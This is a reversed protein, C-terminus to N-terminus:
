ATPWRWTSRATPTAPAPAGTTAPARTTPPRGSQGAAAAVQHERQLRVHGPRLLRGPRSPLFYGVSNAKRAYFGRNLAVTPLASGFTQALLSTGSGVVGFPDFVADNWFTPTYDRGLRVEGFRGVPERHLPPRLLHRRPRGHRRREVPDVELWFGAALGGGLDEQGRFGLRSSANGSNSLVTQSQKLDPTPTAAPTGQYKSTTEYYSVGADVTGFLTVNSQASAVGATALAALAVLRKNM